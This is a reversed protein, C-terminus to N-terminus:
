KRLSFFKGKINLTAKGKGLLHNSRYILCYYSGLNQDYPEITTTLISTGSSYSSGRDPFYWRYTLPFILNEYTQPSPTATCNLTVRSGIEHSEQAPSVHVAVKYYESRESLKHQFFIIFKLLQYSASACM